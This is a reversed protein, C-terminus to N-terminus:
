RLRQLLPQALPSRHAPLPSPLTALIALRGDPLPKNLLEFYSDYDLHRLVDDDAVRDLAIGAEFPKKEFAAWLRREHDPLTTLPKLDSGLRMWATSQFLVPRFTAVAIVLVVLRINEYPMERFEFHPEPNLNRALWPVLDENGKGKAALDFSTGVAVHDSDRIGWVMFAHDKGQLAASNSLGSIYEGIRPADFYNEKFEVYEVETPLARVEDIIESLQDDPFM